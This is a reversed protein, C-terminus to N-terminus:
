HSVVDTRGWIKHMAPTTLAAFSKVIWRRGLDFFDIGTGVQGRATLDFVYMPQNDPISFAPQIDCHLRGVPRGSVESIPFRVHLRMDEANGPIEKGTGFSLEFIKSFDNFREWGQGSIIHNVYTVECQTVLPQDFGRNRLFDAFVRFDNEFKAKIHEYRPYEETGGSKRWNRIFRDAQVQIMENGQENTFWIRPVPPTELTQLRMGLRTRIIEPFQEIASDLPVREDTFSFSPFREWLLGLHATHLGPIPEFQVSLVTEVVPPREFDPLDPPRTMQM